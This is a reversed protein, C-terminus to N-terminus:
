AMYDDRPVQAGGPVSVVVILSALQHSSVQTIEQDISSQLSYPDYKNIPTPSLPYYKEQFTKTSPDEVAVEQEQGEAPSDEVKAQDSSMKSKLSIKIM